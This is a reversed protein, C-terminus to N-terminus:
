KWDCRHYHVNHAAQMPQNERAQPCTCIYVLLRTSTKGFLYKNNDNFMKSLQSTEWSIGAHIGNITLFDIAFPFLAKCVAVPSTFLFHMANYKMVLPNLHNIKRLYKVTSTDLISYAKQWLRIRWHNTVRIRFLWFRTTSSKSQLTPVSLTCHWHLDINYALQSIVCGRCSIWSYTCVCVCGARIRQAKNFSVVRM